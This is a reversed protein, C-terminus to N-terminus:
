RYAASPPDAQLGMAWNAAAMAAEFQDQTAGRYLTQVQGPTMRDRLVRLADYPEDYGAEPLAELRQIEAEIQDPTPRTTM